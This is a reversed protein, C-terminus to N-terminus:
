AIRLAGHAHPVDVFRRLVIMKMDMILVVLVRVLRFAGGVVWVGVRVPMGQHSM